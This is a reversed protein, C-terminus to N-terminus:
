GGRGAAPHAGGDRGGAQRARVPRATPELGVQQEDDRILAVVRRMEALAGTGTTRISELARRVFEPDDFAKEAAGAQVVMVSVSHAVIDHLERAIRAREDAVARLARERSSQEASTARASEVDARQVHARVFWGLSWAVVCVTWHFVIEGPDGLVVVRLDFFLLTASGAM